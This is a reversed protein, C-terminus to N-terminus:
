DMYDWEIERLYMKINDVKAKTKKATEKRGSKEGISKWKDRMCAMHGAWSM